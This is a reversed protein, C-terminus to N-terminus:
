EDGWFLERLSLEDEQSSRNTAPASEGQREKSRQSAQRDAPGDPIRVSDTRQPAETRSATAPQPQPERAPPGQDADIKVVPQTPPGSDPVKRPASPQPAQPVPAAPASSRQAPTPQKAPATPREGPTAEPSAPRTAAQEGAAVGPAAPAAQAESAAPAELVRESPKPNQAMSKVSEAHAQVLRGLSQLFDREKILFPGVTAADGAPLATSPRGSPAGAESTRLIAAAEARARSLTEEAEKRADAVSTDTPGSVGAGAEERLRKNEETLAAWDETLRDLLEDVELENYGRFSQSFEAQQIEAPTLRQRAVPEPPRADDREAKKRRM